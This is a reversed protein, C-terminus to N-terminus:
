FYDNENNEQRIKLAYFLGVRLSFPVDELVMSGGGQSSLRGGRTVFTRLFFLPGEWFVISRLCFLGMTRTDIDFHTPTHTHTHTHTHTRPCTGHDTLACIGICAGWTNTEIHIHTM